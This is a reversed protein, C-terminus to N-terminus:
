SREGSEQLQLAVREGFESDTNALNLLQFYEQRTLGVREIIRFAEAELGRQIRLSESDTEAGQLESQRTEILQIVQLYAQVFQNVKDAPINSSSASQSGSTGEAVPTGSNQASAPNPDGLLLGGSLVLLLLLILLSKV